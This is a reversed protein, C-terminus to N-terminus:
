NKLTQELIRILNKTAFPKSLFADCGSQFCKERDEKTACITLVIIPIERNIEKILKILAFADTGCLFLEIIVLDFNMISSCYNCIEKYNRAFIVKYNTRRFIREVLLCHIKNSDVLLITKDKKIQKPKKM